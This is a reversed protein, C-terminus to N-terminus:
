RDESEVVAVLDDQVSFEEKFQLFNTHYKKNSGVLDNRSTSFELNNVTYFISVVFLVAHPYFFLRPYRFVASALGRLLRAPLSEFAPRM